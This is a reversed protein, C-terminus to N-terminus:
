EGVLAARCSVTPGRRARVATTLHSTL